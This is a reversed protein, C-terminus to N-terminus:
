VHTHIHTHRSFHPNCSGLPSAYTHTTFTPTLALLNSIPAAHKTSSMACSPRVCCLAIQEVRRCAEERPHRSHQQRHGARASHIANGAQAVRSFVAPRQEHDRPRSVRHTTALRQPAPMPARTHLLVHEMRAHLLPPEPTQTCVCTFVCVHMCGCAHVCGITAVFASHHPPWNSGGPQKQPTHLAQLHM